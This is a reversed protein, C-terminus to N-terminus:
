AEVDSEGCCVRAFYALVVVYIAYRCYGTDIYSRCPETKYLNAGYDSTQGGTQSGPSSPISSQQNQSSNSLRQNRNDHPARLGAHAFAMPVLMPSHPPMIGSGSARSPSPASPPSLPHGGMMPGCGLVLILKPLASILPLLPPPPATYTIPRLPPLLAPPLALPPPLSPTPLCQPLTPFIRLLYIPPPSYSSKQFNHRSELAHCFCKGAKWHM